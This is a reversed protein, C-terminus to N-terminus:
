HRLAIVDYQDIGKGDILLEGEQINYFQLLLNTLTSKGCGSHGVLAVKQGAPITMNFNKLVYLPRTPYNFTVDRLEIRGDKVEKLQRDKCERIDLTSPEDIISFIPIAAKQAASVSPIM